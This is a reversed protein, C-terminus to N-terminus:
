PRAPPRGGLSGLVADRVARYPISGGGDNTEGKGGRPATSSLGALGGPVIVEERKVLLAGRSAGAPSTLRAKSEPLLFIVYELGPSYVPLGAARGLDGPGGGPTGVQRFTVKPGGGGKLYERVEFTYTTAAIRAGAVEVTGAEANLCVGRFIRGASGALGALTVPPATTAMPSGPWSAATLAFALAFRVPMSSM